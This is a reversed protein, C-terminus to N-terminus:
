ELLKSEFALVNKGGLATLERSISKGSNSAFASDMAHEDKFYLEVILQPSSETALLGSVESAEYRELFELVDLMPKYVTSYFNLAEETSPFSIMQTMKIM